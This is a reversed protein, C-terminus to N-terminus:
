NLISEDWETVVSNYNGLLSDIMTCAKHYTGISHEFRSHSAREDIFEIGGLQRIRKM